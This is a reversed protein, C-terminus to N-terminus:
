LKKQGEAKERAQNLESETSPRMKDECQQWRPECTGIQVFVGKELCDYYDTRHKIAHRGAISAGHFTLRHELCVFIPHAMKRM